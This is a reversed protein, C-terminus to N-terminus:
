RWPEDATPGYISPVKGGALRIYVSLQGRHHISDLLMYWLLDLVPMPAMARPGSFFPVTESLRSDPMSEVAAILERSGQEYAAIAEELTEPAPPFQPPMPLDGKTSLLAAGNEITFMHILNRASRSKEHPQFDTAGDPIARLVRLTTPIERRLRDLYAQKLARATSDGGRGPARIGERSHRM